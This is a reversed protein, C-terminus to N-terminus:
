LAAMFKIYSIWQKAIGVFDDSLTKNKVVQSWFNLGLKRGLAWCEGDINNPKKIRIEPSPIDGMTPMYIMPSIDFAPTLGNTKLEKLFLCVNENYTDNNGIFCSYAFWTQLLHADSESLIGKEKLGISAEVWNLPQSGIYQNIVADLSVVGVQGEMYHVPVRDFRIIELYLRDDSRQLTTSVAHGNYEALVALAVHECVLLDKVREAIPNGVGLKPSFKVLYSKISNNDSDHLRYNFKPQEGGASSDIDITQDLTDVYNDYDKLIKRQPKANYRLLRPKYNAFFEFHSPTENHFNVLYRLLDDHSWNELKIPTNIRHSAYEAISRGIFGSPKLDLFYWPLGNYHQLENGTEMLSGQHTIWLKRVVSIKAQENIERVIVPQDVDPVERLYIFRTNKGKGFRVVVGGAILQNLQRSVTSLSINLFDSLQAASVLNESMKMYMLLPNIM